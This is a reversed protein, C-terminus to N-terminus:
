VCVVCVFSVFSDIFGILVCSFVCFSVFMIIVAVSFSILCLVCRVCLVCSVCRVSVFVCSLSVFCVVNACLVCFVDCHAIVVNSCVCFPFLVLVLGFCVSFFFSCFFMFGFCAVNVCFLLLVTEDVM